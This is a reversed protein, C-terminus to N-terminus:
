RDGAVAVTVPADVFQAIDRLSSVRLTMHVTREDVNSVMPAVRVEAVLSRVEGSPVPVEARWLVLWLPHGVANVRYADHINSPNRVLLEFRAPTGAYVDITSATNDLAIGPPRAEPNIRRVPMPREDFAREYTVPFVPARSSRYFLTREDWELYGDCRRCFRADTDNDAVCNSCIIFPM